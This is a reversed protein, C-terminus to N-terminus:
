LVNQPRQLNQALQITCKPSPPFYKSLHELINYATKSTPITHYIIHCSGYTQKMAYPRKIEIKLRTNNAPSLARWISAVGKNNLVIDLALESM